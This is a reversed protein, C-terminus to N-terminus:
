APEDASPLVRYITVTSNSYVVDLMTGALREFKGVGQPFYLRETPGVYIYEVEYKALLEGFRRLDSTRFMEGVDALRRDVAHPERGGYGRQQLQHWHWGFVVPLGTYKAVRPTWRYQNTVAELFVPTGDIHERIFALAEADDALRYRSNPDEGRDNPGPDHYEVTQQYATGDLTLPLGADFRDAIRARTGLIPFVSSAAVLVILLALWAGRVFRVRGM